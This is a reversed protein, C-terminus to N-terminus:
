TRKNADLESQVLQQSWAGRTWDTSSTRLWSMLPARSLLMARWPPARVVPARLAAAAPGRAQVTPQSVDKTHAAEETAVRASSCAASLAACLLTGVLLAVPRLSGGVACGPKNTYIELVCPPARQTRLHSGTTAVVWHTSCANGSHEHARPLLATASCPWRKPARSLARKYKVAPEGVHAMHRGPSRNGHPGRPRSRQSTGARRPAPRRSCRTWGPSSARLWAM